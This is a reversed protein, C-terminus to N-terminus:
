GPPRRRTRQSPASPTVLFVPRGKSVDCGLGACPAAVAGPRNPTNRRAVYAHLVDGVEVARAVGRGGPAPGLPPEDKLGLASLLGSLM